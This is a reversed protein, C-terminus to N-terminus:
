QKGADMESGKIWLGAEILVQIEFMDEAKELDVADKLYPTMEKVAPWLMGYDLESIQQRAYSLRQPCDGEIDQHDDDFSMTQLCNQYYDIDSLLAKRFRGVAKENEEDTIKTEFVRQIKELREKIWENELRKENEEKLLEIHTLVDEKREPIRQSRWYKNDEEIQRDIEKMLTILYHYRREAYRFIDDFCIDFTQNEKEPDISYIIVSFDGHGIGGGSWSAFAKPKFGYLNVQHAAFVARVTKFYDTDDKDSQKFVSHDDKFPIEKTNFLVRHLQSIGECLVDIYSVFSIMRRSAEDSNERILSDTDIGEVTVQIWDMASCIINWQNKGDRNRYLKWIRNGDHVKDRFEHLLRDTLKPM